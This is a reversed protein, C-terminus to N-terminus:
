VGQNNRDYNKVLKYLIENREVFLLITYIVFGVIVGCVFSIFVNKVLLVIFLVFVGMVIANLLYVAFKKFMIDVDIIERALYLQVVTVATEACLTAIAAGLAQYKPILVMNLSFNVIAGCLVSYLTCKEKKLPMFLHLGIFNSIGIILIIPTMIRM